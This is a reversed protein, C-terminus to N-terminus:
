KEVVVFQQFLMKKMEHLEEMEFPRGGVLFNIWM